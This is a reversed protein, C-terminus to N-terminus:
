MKLLILREMERMNINVCDCCSSVLSWVYRVLFSVKLALSTTLIFNEYINDTWTLLFFYTCNGNSEHVTELAQSSASSQNTKKEDYLDATIQSSNSSFDEM